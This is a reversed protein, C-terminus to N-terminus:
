KSSFWSLPNIIGWVFGGVDAVGGIVSDWYYEVNTTAPEPVDNTKNAITADYKCEALDKVVYGPIPCTENDTNEKVWETTEESPGSAVHNIRAVFNSNTSCSTTLILCVILSTVKKM